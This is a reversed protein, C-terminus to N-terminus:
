MISISVVLEHNQYPMFCLLTTKSGICLRLFLATERLKELSMEFSASKMKIERLARRIGAISVGKRSLCSLSRLYSLPFIKGYHRAVMSICAPGCDMQDFQRVFPFTWKKVIHSVDM